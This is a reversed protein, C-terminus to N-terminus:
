LIIVSWNQREVGFLKMKTLVKIKENTDQWQLDATHIGHQVYFVLLKAAVGM